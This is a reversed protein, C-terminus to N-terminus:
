GIGLLNFASVSAGVSGSVATSSTYFLVNSTTSGAGESLGSLTITGTATLNTIGALNGSIIAGDVASLASEKKSIKYKGIRQAM